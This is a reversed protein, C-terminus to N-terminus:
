ILVELTKTAPNIKLICDSMAFAYCTTTLDTATAIQIELFPAAM